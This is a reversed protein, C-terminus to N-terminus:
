PPVRVTDVETTTVTGGGLFPAAAQTWAQVSPHESDDTLEALEVYADHYHGAWPEGNQVRSQVLDSGNVPDLVDRNVTVWNSRDPNVAGDLEAVLDNDDELSMMQVSDPIEFQSVPSGATLCTTIAYRQRVQPDAALYAATIGGQSYGVLMVPEGARVGAVAMAALAAEVADPDPGANGVGVQGVMAVNSTLDAPLRGGNVTWAQTPPLYVIWRTGSPDAIRDVVVRGAVFDPSAMSGHPATLRGLRGILGAVSTPGPQQRVQAPTAVVRGEVFVGVPQGARVMVGSAGTVDAFMGVAAEGLTAGLVVPLAAIVERAHDPHAALWEVAATGDASGQALLTEAVGDLHDSVTQGVPAGHVIEDAGLVAHAGVAGVVRAQVWATIVAVSAGFALPLLVPSTAATVRLCGAAWGGAEDDARQYVWAAAEIGAALGSLSVASGALGDRGGLAELVRAHTDHGGAPDLTGTVILAPDGTLALCRASLRALTDASGLLEASALRLSEIGVSTGGAGGVVELGNVDGM